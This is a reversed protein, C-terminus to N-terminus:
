WSKGDFYEGLKRVTSFLGYWVQGGARMVRGRM